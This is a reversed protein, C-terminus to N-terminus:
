RGVKIEPFGGLEGCYHTLKNMRNKDGGIDIIPNHDTRLVQGLCTHLTQHRSNANGLSSILKSGETEEVAVRPNNKNISEEGSRM